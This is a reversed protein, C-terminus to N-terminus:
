EGYVADRIEDLTLGNAAKNIACLLLAYLQKKSVDTNYIINIDTDDAHIIITKM